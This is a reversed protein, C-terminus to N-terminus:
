AEEFSAIDIPEGRRQSELAALAIKVAMLGDQPSVRFPKNQEVCDLFHVLEQYYPDDEPALPSATHRSVSHPDIDTDRRAIILPQDHQSDWEILGQDGAIELRTRFQGRPHAWSGEIHGIAGNVFRLTILTHDINTPETFAIPEDDTKLKAFAKATAFTLGRAFVREVEGFCWRVFDIDHISIDMIVGGSQALDDYWTGPKSRPFSGARVTRILGPQGIAGEAVLNRARAFQPFFRVVQAVFLPVNAAECAQVMDECDAVHRALPKECVMPKGAAAAALVAEKHATTHTCIDVYDVTALLDTLHQYAQGGFQDTAHQASEHHVDYFGAIEVPLQQWRQAHWVGMNGAGILGIRKM